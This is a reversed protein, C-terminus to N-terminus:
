EKRLYSRSFAVSNGETRKIKAKPTACVYLASYFDHVTDMELAHNTVPPVAAHRIFSGYRGALYFGAVATLSGGFALLAYLSRGERLHLLGFIGAGVGILLLLIGLAFIRRTKRVACMPCYRAHHTHIGTFPTTVTTKKKQTTWDISVDTVKSEGKNASCYEVDIMPAGCAPCKESAELSIKRELLNRRVDLVLKRLEPDTVKEAIEALEEPEKNKTLKELAKLRKKWDMEAM